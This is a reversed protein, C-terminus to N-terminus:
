GRGLYGTNFIFKIIIIGIALFILWSFYYRIHAGRIKKNLMSGLQSGIISGTLICIVLRFDVNGKLFHSITGYGSIFIIQFLGTGIAISTPVGVLYILAPSLVFGGGVGLLGSLFGVGFGICILTWISISEINSVSLSITPQIRITHIKRAFISDVVGGRPARKTAKKSEIFMFTGVISLMVIYIINVWLYMKSILNGHIIVNGLGMLWVLVRAGTEVGGIAGILIFIGLKYDIHNYSRHRLTAAASTGVMQFLSSGVAINYPINFIANLLPVLLFGGGVGFLGSLTGIIFGLGVFGACNIM